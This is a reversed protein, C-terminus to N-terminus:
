CAGRALLHHLVGLSGRIPAWSRSIMSKVCESVGERHDLSLLRKRKRDTLTQPVLEEESLAQRGSHCERGTCSGRM